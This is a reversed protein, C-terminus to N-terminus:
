ARPEERAPWPLVTQQADAQALAALVADMDYDRLAENIAAGLAAGGAGSTSLEQVCRRLETASHLHVAELLRRRLAPALAAAQPPSAATATPASKGAATRLCRELSQWTVPKALFDDFGGRLYHEREHGFASASHAVIHLQMGPLARLRRAVEPGDLDPLRVDLFVVAPTQAPLRAAKVLAEAGSTAHEPRAGMTELMRALVARNERADDVILVRLPVPLAEVARPDAPGKSERAPAVAPLAIEFWFTSGAGPQSEVTLQGGMLAVHARAITLGLGTGGRPRTAPGQQFPQFILELLEPAIGVGSDTVSFRRRGQDDAETALVVRGTETFKVANGVLNILVQRLKMADGRVLTRVAPAGELRFTLRKDRCRKEFLLAIESLLAGLEFESERLEVRGDEIKALDLIESVLELLHWGSSGIAGVAERGGPPLHPERELIQAYGLIANLPTRIEHSMNALFASKARNARAADDEAKRRVADEAESRRRLNSSLYGGALATLVLGAALVWWAAGQGQGALFLESPQFRVLWASGSVDLLDATGPEGPGADAGPDRQGLRGHQLEVAGGRGSAKVLLQGTSREIVTTDLGRLSLAQLTPGLLDGIRFVALAFGLLADRRDNVSAVVPANVPLPRYVPLFVLFGLQGAREQALKVAQTAVARGEDRARELARRRDPEAGLDFGLAEENGTRPELFLVPFYEDRAAARRLGAPTEETFQFGRLGEDRAAQEFTGREVEPVRPIWELARLEPQRALSRSVFTAFNERTVSPQVAFLAGIGHLVETSRELKTRLLHMSESALLILQRSRAAEVRARLSVFLLWTGCGLLACIGVIGLRRRV